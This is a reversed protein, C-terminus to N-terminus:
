LCALAPHSPWLSRHKMNSGRRRLPVSPSVKSSVVEGWGQWAWQNEGGFAAGAGRGPVAWCDWSRGMWGQMQICSSWGQQLLPKPIREFVNSSSRRKLQWVWHHLFCKSSTPTSLLIDARGTLLVRNTVIPGIGPWIIWRWFYRLCILRARCVAAQDRQAAQRRNMSLGGYSLYRERCQIM